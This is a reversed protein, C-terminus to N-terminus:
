LCGEYINPSYSESIPVGTNIMQYNAPFSKFTFSENKKVDQRIVYLFYMSLVFFFVFFFAFLSNM